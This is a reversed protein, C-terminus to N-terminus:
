QKVPAIIEIRTDNGYKSLAITLEREGKEAKILVRDSRKEPVVVKWRDKPLSDVYFSFIESLSVGSMLVVAYADPLHRFSIVKKNNPLPIDDPFYGPIDSVEEFKAKKIVEEGTLSVTDSADIGVEKKYRESKEKCGAIILILLLFVSVLKECNIGMYGLWRNESVM